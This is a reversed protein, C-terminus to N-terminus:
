TRVYLYNDPTVWKCYVDADQISDVVVFIDDDLQDAILGLTEARSKICDDRKPIDLFVKTM